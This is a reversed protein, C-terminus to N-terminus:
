TVISASQPYILCLLRFIYFNAAQLFLSQHYHYPIDCKTLFDQGILHSTIAFYLM